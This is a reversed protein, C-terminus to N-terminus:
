EQKAIYGRLMMLTSVVAVFLGMGFIVLVVKIGGSVLKKSSKKSVGANPNLESLERRSGAPLLKPLTINMQDDFKGAIFDALVERMQRDSDISNVIFFKQKEKDAFVLAPATVNVGPEKETFESYDVKGVLADKIVSSAASKFRSVQRLDSTVMFAFRRCTVLGEDLRWNGFAMLSMDHTWKVMLPISLEQEFNVVIDNALVAAYETESAPAPIFFTRHEIGPVFGEIQKLQRCVEADKTDKLSLVFSPFEHAFDVPYMLCPISYDRQILHDAVQSFFELTRTPRIQTIKGKVITLFTPWGSASFVSKCQERYNVCDIEAIMIKKSAEYKDMLEKWVPHVKICHGCHPSYMLLFVPIEHSTSVILHSNNEHATFKLSVLFLSALM